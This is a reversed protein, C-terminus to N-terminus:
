MEGFAKEHYSTAVSFHLMNMPSLYEIMEPSERLVRGEAGGGASRGEGLVRLSRACLRIM